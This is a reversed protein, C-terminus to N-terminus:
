YIRKVTEVMGQAPSHTDVKHKFFHVLSFLYKINIKVKLEHCDGFGQPNFATLRHRCKIFHNFFLFNIAEGQMGIRWM